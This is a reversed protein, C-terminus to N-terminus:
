VVPVPTPRVRDAGVRSRRVQLASGALLPPGRILRLQRYSLCSDTHIRMKSRLVDNLFRSLGAVGGGPPNITPLVPGLLHACPTAAPHSAL